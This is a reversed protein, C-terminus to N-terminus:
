WYKMQIGDIKFAIYRFMFSITNCVIAILAILRYVRLYNSIDQFSYNLILFLIGFVIGIVLFIRSLVLSKSNM